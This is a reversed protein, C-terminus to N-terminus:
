WRRLAAESIPGMNYKDRLEQVLEIAENRSVTYGTKQEVSSQVEPICYHRYLPHQEDIYASAAALRAEREEETEFLANEVASVTQHVLEKAAGPTLCELAEGLSDFGFM